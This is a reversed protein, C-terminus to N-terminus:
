ASDPQLTVLPLAILSRLSSIVSKGISNGCFSVILSFVLRCVFMSIKWLVSISLSSVFKITIHLAFHGLSNWLTRFGEWFTKNKSSMLCHTYIQVWNKKKRYKYYLQYFYDLICLFCKYFIGLLNRPIYVIYYHLCILVETNSGQKCVFTSNAYRCTYMHPINQPSNEIFNYKRWEHM